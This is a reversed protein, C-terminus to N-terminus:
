GGDAVRVLDTDSAPESGSVLGQALAVNVSVNQADDLGLAARAEELPGLEHHEIAVTWVASEGGDVLVHTAEARASGLRYRRRRKTVAIAGLDVAREFLGVLDAEALPDPNSAPVSRGGVETVVNAVVGAPFPADHSWAPRWREFDATVDTLHKVELSGRRLKANVSTLPGLLYRDRLTEQGSWRGVGALRERVEGLDGWVRFEYRGLPDAAGDAM